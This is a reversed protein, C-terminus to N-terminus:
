SRCHPSHRILRLRKVKSRGKPEAHVAVRDCSLVHPAPVVHASSMPCTLVGWDVVEDDGIDEMGGWCSESHASRCEDDIPGGVDGPIPISPENDPGLSDLLTPIVAAHSEVDGVRAWVNRADPGRGAEACPSVEDRWTPILPEDDSSDDIRTIAAELGTLVAEVEEEMRARARTRRPGPNSAEGIRAGRHGYQSDRTVASSWECQRHRHM